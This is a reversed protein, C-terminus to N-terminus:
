SSYLVCTCGYIPPPRRICRPASLVRRAVSTRMHKPRVAIPPLPLAVTSRLATTRIDNGIPVSGPASSCDVGSAAARRHSRSPRDQCPVIDLEEDVRVRICPHLGLFSLWGPRIVRVRPDPDTRTVHRLTELHLTLEMTIVHSGRFLGQLLGESARAIDNCDVRQQCVSEATSMLPQCRRTGECKAM